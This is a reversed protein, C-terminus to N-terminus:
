NLYLKRTRDHLKSHRQIIQHVPSSKLAETACNYGAWLSDAEFEQHSPEWVERYAATSQTPSLIGEGTLIGLFEFKQKRTMRIQKMSEVDESLRSFQHQSKYIATVIQDHLDEHMDKGQHKRMVKIDGAFMLNDCVLVTSGLVIGASLSKDYSNRIGIAVKLEEPQQITRKRFTLVGFMKKGDSSLAYSDGDFQFGQLLDSAINRTNTAFDYHNLPTYSRTQNPEPITLLQDVSCRKSGCQTLLQTKM